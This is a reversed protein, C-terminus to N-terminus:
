GQQQLYQLNGKRLELFIQHVSWHSWVTQGDVPLICKCTICRICIIWFCTTRQPEHRFSSSFLNQLPCVNRFRFMGDVKWFASSWAVCCLKANRRHTHFTPLLSRSQPGVWGEIRHFCSHEWYAFRFPRSASWEWGDVASTLSQM